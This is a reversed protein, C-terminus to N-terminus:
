EEKIIFHPVNEVLWEQTKKAGHSQASDQQFSWPRKKFHERAWPLLAGVLIDDRYKQQNLKMGQDVFFLPSRGSMSFSIKSITERFRIRCLCMQLFECNQKM